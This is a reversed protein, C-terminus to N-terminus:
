PHAKWYDRSAAEMRAVFAAPDTKGFILDNDQPYFVTSFWGPATQMVGDYPLHFVRAGELLPGLDALTPPVVADKRPSLNGTARALADSNEKRALFRLFDLAERPHKADQPVAFGFFMAEVDTPDGKGGPVSPFPYFGMDFGPAALPGTESPIWTGCLLSASRGRAWDSQADPWVTGPYGPQFWNEGRAGLQAVLRAAELYEPARWLAGTRDVAARQLAGPGALRDLIWIYYYANYFSINADLALPTVGHLALTRNNRVFDDWTPPPKLGFAALLPRSYFFGSSVFEYPFFWLHGKSAYLRVLDERYLDMMRGQGEPGPTRYFFDDLPRVQPRDGALLAASLETFDQDVLDPADGMLMRAHIKTLVDRGLFRLVVTVGTETGFEQAM